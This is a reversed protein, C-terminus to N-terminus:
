CLSGLYILRENHYDLARLLESISKNLIPHILEGAIESLPVLVFARKHLEPHPIKLRESEFARDEYFLIDIDITRPGWPRDRTRGLGKEIKLIRDLLEDPELDTKVSVAGNVFWDQDQPGVPSTCYLSSIQLIKVGETSELALLMDRINKLKDGM